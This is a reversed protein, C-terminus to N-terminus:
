FRAIFSKLLIIKFVIPYDTGKIETGMNIISEEKNFPDIKKAIYKKREKKKKKKQIILPYLLKEFELILEKPLYNKSEKELEFCINIAEDITDKRNM